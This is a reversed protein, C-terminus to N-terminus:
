LRLAGALLGGLFAFPYILNRFTLYGVFVYIESQHPVRVAYYDLYYSILGPEFLFVLTFLFVSGTLLLANHNETVELIQKVIFGISVGFFLLSVFLEAKLALILVVIMLILLTAFILHLTNQSFWHGALFTAYSFLLMALSSAFFLLPFGINEHIGLDFAFTQVLFAGFLVMVILILFIAVNASNDNKGVDFVALVFGTLALCFFISIFFAGFSHFLEAFTFPSLRSLAHYVVDQPAFLTDLVVFFLELFGDM